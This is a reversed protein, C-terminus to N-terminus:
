LKSRAVPPLPLLEHYAIVKRSGETFYDQSWDWGAFKWEDDGNDDFNNFGITRAVLANELPKGDDVGSYDVLLAYLTGDKRAGEIPLWNNETSM